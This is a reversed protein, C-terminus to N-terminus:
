RSCGSMSIGVKSTDQLSLNYIRLGEMRPNFAIALRIIETNFSEIVIRHALQWYGFQHRV